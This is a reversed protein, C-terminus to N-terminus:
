APGPAGQASGGAPVWAGALATRGGETRTAARGHVHGHAIKEAPTPDPHNRRRLFSGQGGDSPEPGSDIATTGVKQVTVVRHGGPLALVTVDGPKLRDGRSSTSRRCASSWTGNRAGYAEAAPVTVQFADGRRAGELAKELGSSTATASPHHATRRARALQRRDRQRDSVSYHFSVVKNQEVKM